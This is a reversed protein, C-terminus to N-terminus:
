DARAACADWDGALRFIDRGFPPCFNILERRAPTGIAQWAFPTMGAPSCFNIM